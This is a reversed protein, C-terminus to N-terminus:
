HMAPQARPTTRSTDTEKRDASLREIGPAVWGCKGALGGIVTGSLDLRHGRLPVPDLCEPAMIRRNQSGRHSLRALAAMLSETAFGQYRFPRVDVILGANTLVIPEFPTLARAQGIPGLDWQTSLFDRWYKLSM